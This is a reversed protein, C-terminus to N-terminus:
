AARRWEGTAKRRGIEQAAADQIRPDVPKRRPDPRGGALVILRSSPVSRLAGFEGPKGSALSIM